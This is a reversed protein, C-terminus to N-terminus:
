SSSIASLPEDLASSTVPFLAHVRWGGGQRPGATLRGGAATVRERMGVLGHGLTADAGRGSLTAAGRGDDAVEVELMGDRRTVTVSVVRVPGAHRRVNTLAEQVVRYAHLEVGSPVDTLDADVHLTVPLGPDAHVLEGLLGLSPAPAREEAGVDQRLVGLIRRMEDMAARGTSEIAELAQTAHAPNTSLQRRAAGAQIVMVSVSHAVVDHLERAIRAREDQLQQRAILERERAARESQEALEALRERRRRMGDGFIITAPFVVLTSILAGPPADGAVIGAFVFITAVVSFVFGTWQTNEGSGHAGVSYCAILVGLWGPGDAGMAALAFQPMAVLVLVVVPWRRRWALPVTGAVCLVVGRLSPEVVTGDHGADGFLHVLVSLVALGAALIRDAGCPHARVWRQPARLADPVTSPV